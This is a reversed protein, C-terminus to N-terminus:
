KAVHVGQPPMVQFLTAKKQMLLDGKATTHLHHGESYQESQPKYHDVLWEVTVSRYNDTECSNLNNDNDIGLRVNLCQNPLSVM